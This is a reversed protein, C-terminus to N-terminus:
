HVSEVALAQKWVAYPIRINEREIFDRALNMKRAFAEEGGEFGAASDPNLEYWQAIDEIIAAGPIAHDSEQSALLLNGKLQIHFGIFKIGVPTDEWGNEDFNFALDFDLRCPSWVVSLEDGKFGEGFCFLFLMDEHWIIREGREIAALFKLQGPSIGLMAHRRQKYLAELSNM